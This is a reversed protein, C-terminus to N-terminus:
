TKSSIWFCRLCWGLWDKSSIVRKLQLVWLAEHLQNIKKVQGEASHSELVKGTSQSHNQFRFGLSEVSIQEAQPLFFNLSMQQTVVLKM